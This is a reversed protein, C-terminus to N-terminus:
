LALRTRDMKTAGFEDEFEEDASSAGSIPEDDEEEEEMPLALSPLALTDLESQPPKSAPPRDSFSVRLNPASANFVFLEDGNASGESLDREGLASDSAFLRKQKQTPRLEGLEGSADSHEDEDESIAMLSIARRSALAPRPFANVPMNKKGVTQVPAQRKPSVSPQGDEPALDRNSGSRNSRNSRNSFSGDRGSGATSSGLSRSSQQQRLRISRQKALKAAQLRREEAKKHNCYWWTGLVFGAVMLVAVVIVIIILTGVTADDSPDTVPAATPAVSEGPLVPPPDFYPNVAIKVGKIRQLEPNAQIRAVLDNYGDETLFAAKFTDFVVTEVFSSNTPLTADSFIFGGTFNVQLLVNSDDFPSAGVTSTLMVQEFNDESLPGTAPIQDFLTDALHTETVTELEDSFTILDLGSSGVKMTMIFGPMPYATLSQLRRRRVFERHHRIRHRPLVLSAETTMEQRITSQSSAATATATALWLCLTLQLLWAMKRAM